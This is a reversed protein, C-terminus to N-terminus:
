NNLKNVFDSSKYLSRNFQTNTKNMTRYMKVIKDGVKTTKKNHSNEFALQNTTSIDNASASPTYASSFDFMYKRETITTEATVQRSNFSYPAVAAMPKKKTQFSPSKDNSPIKVCTSAINKRTSQKVWMQEDKVVQITLNGVIPSLRNYVHALVLQQDADRRVRVDLSGFLLLENKNVKRKKINTDFLAITHFKENRIELVGDLTQAESLLKDLQGIEHPSITNLFIHSCCAVLPCMIVIIMSAILIAVITDAKYSTNFEIIVYNAIMLFTSMFTLIMIPNLKPLLKKSLRPFLLCVTTNMNSIQEQIISSSSAYYIANVPKITVLCLKLISYTFLVISAPLIKSYQIVPQEIFIRTLSDKYIFISSVMTFLFTSFVLLTISREYSQAILNNNANVTSLCLENVDSILSIVLTMLEFIALISFAEMAVSKTTFCWHKILLIIFVNIIFFFIVKRCEVSNFMLKLMCKLKVYSNKKKQFPLIPGSLLPKIANSKGSLDFDLEPDIPLLTYQDISYKKNVGNDYFSMM